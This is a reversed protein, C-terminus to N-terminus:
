GCRAGPTAVFILLLAFLNYSAHCVMGPLLSRTWEYVAALAVGALFLAPLLLLVYGGVSAAHLIAFVLGSVAAAALWPMRQRLTGFLFGRFILEEAAPAVLAVALIAIWEAGSYGVRIQCVQPNPGARFLPGLGATILAGALQLAVALFPMPLLVRLPIRRLGLLRLPLHRRGVTVWLVVGVVAGYILLDGVLNIVAVATAGAAGRTSVGAARLALEIGILVAFAGALAPVALLTALGLDAWGWPM